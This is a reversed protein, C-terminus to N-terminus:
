MAGPLGSGNRCDFVFNKASGSKTSLWSSSSLFIRASLFSRHIRSSNMVIFTAREHVRSCSLFRVLILITENERLRSFPPFTPLITSNFLDRATWPFRDQPYRHCSPRHHRSPRHYNLCSSLNLFSSLNLSSVLQLLLILLSLILHDLDLTMILVFAKIISRRHNIGIFVLNIRM